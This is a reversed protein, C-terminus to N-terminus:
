ARGTVSAILAIVKRPLRKRTQTGSMGALSWQERVRNEHVDFKIRQSGSLASTNMHTRAPRVPCVSRQRHDIIRTHKPSNRFLVRACLRMDIQQIGRCVVAYNNTLPMTKCDGHFDAAGLHTRIHVTM